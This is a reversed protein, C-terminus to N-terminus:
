RRKEYSHARRKWDGLIEWKSTDIKAGDFEDNWALKWTKGQGAPPMFEERIQAHAKFATSLLACLILLKIIFSPQHKM